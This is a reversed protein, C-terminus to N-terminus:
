YGKSRYELSPSLHNKVADNITTNSPMRDTPVCLRLCAALFKTVPGDPGGIGARSDGGDRLVRILEDAIGAAMLAWPQPPKGRDSLRLTLGPHDLDGRQRELMAIATELDAIQREAAVYMIEAARFKPLLQRWGAIDRRLIGAAARLTAGENRETKARDRLAAIQDEDWPRDLYQNIRRTLWSVRDEDPSLYNPRGALCSALEDAVWEPSVPM